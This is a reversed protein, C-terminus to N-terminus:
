GPHHCSAPCPLAPPLQAIDRTAFQDALQGALDAAEISLHVALPLVQNCARPVMLLCKPLRWARTGDHSRDISVYVSVWGQNRRWRAARLALHQIHSVRQGQQVKAIVTAAVASDAVLQLLVRAGTDKRFLRRYVRWDVVRYERYRPAKGRLPSLLIPLNDSGWTDPLLSWACRCGETAVSLDIATM